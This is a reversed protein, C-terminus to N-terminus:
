VKYGIVAYDQPGYFHENLRDAAASGSVKLSSPCPHLLLTRVCCLGRAEALFRVTPEPLPTQHTPDLHFIHSSVLVNAPNPTEFIAVGGPMLVRVTEDLLRIMSAFPLHEIVHFGTVAGVSADPLAQLYELMDGEVVQLGRERCQELFVRNIEVGRAELGEEKLLELWEGRGCGVDLVPRGKKGAAAESIVPLYVRVRNKIDESTGRFMDEFAAYLPDFRHQAEKSFAALQAQSLPAPLRQRAECLLLSLRHDQQALERRLSYLSRELAATNSAIRLELERSRTAMSASAAELQGCLVNLHNGLQAHLRPAFEVFAEHHRLIVPLRLIGTALRLFYGLVPIRYLTRLGFPLMLGRVRVKLRRGEASFRIQGLIEVKSLTGERLGGLFHRATDNDPDRKLLARYAAVVFAEDHFGLFDSVHYAPADPLEAAAQWAYRPLVLPSLPELPPCTDSLNQAPSAAKRRPEVERRVHAMLTDLDPDAAGADM